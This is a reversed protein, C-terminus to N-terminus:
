RVIFNEFNLLDERILKKNVTLFKKDEFHNTVSLGKLGLREFNEENLEVINQALLFLSLMVSDSIHDNLNVIHDSKFFSLLLESKTVQSQNVHESLAEGFYERSNNKEWLQRLGLIADCPSPIFRDFKTLVGDRDEFVSYWKDQPDLINTFAITGLNHKLLQRDDCIVLPSKSNLDPVDLLLQSPKIGIFKITSALYEHTESDSQCLAKSSFFKVSM